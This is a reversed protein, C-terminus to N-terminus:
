PCCCILKGFIGQHTSVLHLSCHRHRRFCCRSSASYIRLADKCRERSYCGKNSKLINIKLLICDFHLKRLIVWLNLFWKFFFVAIFINSKKKMYLLQIHAINHYLHWIKYMKQKNAIPSSTDLFLIVIKEKELLFM